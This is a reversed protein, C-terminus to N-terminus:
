RSPGISLSWIPSSSTSSKFVSRADPVSRRLWAIHDLASLNQEVTISHIIRVCSPLGVHRDIPIPLQRHVRGHARLLLVSTMVEDPPVSVPVCLAPEPSPLAMSSPVTSPLLILQFDDMLRGIGISAPTRRRPSRLSEKRTRNFSPMNPLWCNRSHAGSRPQPFCRQPLIGRRRETEVRVAM